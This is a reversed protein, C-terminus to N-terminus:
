ELGETYELINLIERWQEEPTFRKWANSNRLFNGVWAEKQATTLKSYAETGIKQRHLFHGLEHLVERRTPNKSLLFWLKGDKGVVFAADAGSLGREKALKALLDDADTIVKDPHM